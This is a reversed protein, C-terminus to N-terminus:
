KPSWKKNLIDGSKIYEPTSSKLKKRARKAYTKANKEDNNLNYYEAMAWDARGDGDDFTKALTWYALPTPEVLIATRALEAARTKDDPKNRETLVIALATQIQPANPLLELAKEYASVSDDYHGFQFEIDGLLEYYYPSNPNRSILTRTGVRATDLDGGRMNAIARAYIAADTKNSYPYKTLVVKPSDLYGILKARVLEFKANQRNTATADQKTTIKTKAIKERANKIRESTLPHNIRNPNVRSEIADSMDRMQEFVVILANPDIGARNLIDVGMDDAIREEDRSFALMSQQAVGSAGALVGAGLSPNGGAVMLGIGLAQIMMARKMESEMRASMQAMHGGITHGLEHAVVAQLAAPSKIQKILGTYIYVDEGGMVFANFDDDDVIHVNLRGDPIDAASALPSILETLTKEIETDNIISAAYTPMALFLTVFIAIIKRVSM